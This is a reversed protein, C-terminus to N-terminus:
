PCTMAVPATIDLGVDTWTKSVGDPGKHLAHCAKQLAAFPGQLKFDMVDLSGTLVLKSGKELVWNMPITESQGNATLLLNATGKKEGRVKALTGSVKGKNKWGSFISGKLTKDRGPNGTNVSDVWLTVSTGNLLSKISDFNKIPKFDVKDFNGPVPAKATFKFATFGVRSEKPVIAYTCNSATAKESGSGKQSGSGKHSTSAMALGSLTLACVSFAAVLKM